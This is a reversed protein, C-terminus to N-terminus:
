LNKGGKDETKPPRPYPNQSEFPLRIKLQSDPALQEVLRQLVLRATSYRESSDASQAMLQPRLRAAMEMDLTFQSPVEPADPIQQAAVPAAWLLSGISLHLGFRQAGRIEV